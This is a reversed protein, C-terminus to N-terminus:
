FHWNSRSPANAWSDWCSRNSSLGSHLKNVFFLSLFECRICDIVPGSNSVLIQKSQLTKRVPHIENSIHSHEILSRIKFSINQIFTDVQWVFADSPSIVRQTKSWIKNLIAWVWLNEMTCDGEPITAHLSNTVCLCTSSFKVQGPKQLVTDTTSPIQQYIIWNAATLLVRPTPSGTKM